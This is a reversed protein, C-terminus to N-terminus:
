HRDNSSQKGKILKELHQIDSANFPTKYLENVLWLGSNAIKEKPSFSGLWHSSPVCEECWSITSILKSEIELRRKKNNIEFVCFSFAERIYQSVQSEIAKQYRSDILHSYKEKAKRTTLDLEWYELFSDNEKKLLSRGINKRFISRDKNENLFHQKLRPFLQNEGTHTGVRVIREGGHGKENKEFLIYIGNHPIDSNDFPFYHRKLHGALEHIVECEKSM